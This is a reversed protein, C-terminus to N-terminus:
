SETKTLAWLGAGAKAFVDPKRKMTTFLSTKLRAMDDAHFGGDILRKAIERTKLPRKAERLVIQAAGIQKMGVFRDSRSGVEGSRDSHENAENGIKAALYEQVARLQVLETELRSIDATVEVHLNSYQVATMAIIELAVTWTYPNRLTKDIGVALLALMAIASQLLRDCL